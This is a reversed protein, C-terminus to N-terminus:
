ILVKKVPAHKALEFIVDSPSDENIIRISGHLSKGSHKTDSM